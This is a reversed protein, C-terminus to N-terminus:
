RLSHTELSMRMNIKRSALDAFEPKVNELLDHLLNDVRTLEEKTLRSGDRHAERLARLERHAAEANLRMHIVSQATDWIGMEEFALDIYGWLSQIQSHGTMSAVHTLITTAVDMPLKQGVYVKLRELVQITIWRHRLMHATAREDIGAIRRLRAIDQTITEVHLRNGRHNLFLWGPDRKITGLKKLRRVHLARQIKIFSMVADLTAKPIPVERIRWNGGKATPLRIKGSRSMAAEEVDKVSLGCIESRRAGTDALLKLITAARQQIYRSNAIKHCAALLESLVNRAMPKVDRPVDEAVMSDHWVYSIRRGKIEMRRREITVQAADGLEGVLPRKAPFFKQYWELFGLARRLIKNTQRGGRRKGGKRGSTFEGELRESFSYIVDDDVDEFHLRHEYLFRLFHSLESAYTNVTGIARGFRLANAAYMNAPWCPRGNPWFLVRVGPFAKTVPGTSSAYLVLECRSDTTKWLKRM